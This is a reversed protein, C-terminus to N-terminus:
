RKVGEIFFVDPETGHFAQCLSRDPYHTVSEAVDFVRLGLSELHSRLKAASTLTIAPESGRWGGFRSSAPNMADDETIRVVGGPKLVRSIEKFVFPWLGEPLYMLAHSISVGAVSGTEFQPLGEEFLWGTHRDLNVCGTLPHWSDHNPRGCGLNLRLPAVAGPPLSPSRKPQRSRGTVRHRYTALVAEVHAVRATCSVDYWFHWDELDVDRFRVTQGLVVTRVLPSMVPIFNATALQHRVWGHMAKDRYRYQESALVQTRKSDDVIQVDCTVWGAEPYAGFAALQTAVKQPAIVDDADLFMIFEGVAADIGANRALGPGVHPTTLRRIRRGFSALVAATDDTSGDDVVIVECEVTQALASRIAEAVFAGHNFTPIIISAALAYADSVFCRGVADPSLGDKM